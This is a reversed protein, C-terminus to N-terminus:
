HVAWTLERTQTVNLMIATPKEHQAIVFGVMQLVNASLNTSVTEASGNLYAKYIAAGFLLINDDKVIHYTM